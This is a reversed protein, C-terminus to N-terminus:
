RQHVRLVAISFAVFSLLGIGLLLGDELCFEAAGIEGRFLGSQDMVLPPVIVSVASSIVMLSIACGKSLLKARVKGIVYIGVAVCTAVGFGIGGFLLTGELEIDRFFEQSGTAVADKYGEFFGFCGFCVVIGIWLIVLKCATM